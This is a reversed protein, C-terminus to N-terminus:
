FQTSSTSSISKVPNAFRAYCAFLPDTGSRQQAHQQKAFATEAETDPFSLPKKEPERRYSVICAGTGQRLILDIAVRLPKGPALTALIELNARNTM